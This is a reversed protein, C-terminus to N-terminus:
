RANSPGGCVALGSDLRSTFSGTRGPYLAVDLAADASGTSTPSTGQCTSSEDNDALLLVILSSGLRRMPNCEVGLLEMALGGSRPPRTFPDGVCILPVRKAGVCPPLRLMEGLPRCYKEWPRLLKCTGLFSM